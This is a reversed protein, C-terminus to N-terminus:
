KISNRVEDVSVGNERALRELDDHEPKVRVTGYGESIKVRVEGYKTAATEERRPLTHRSFAYERIGLTTTHRFMLELMLDKHCSRCMCVLETGARGKKMGISHTYVDLAGNEFLVDRAFSIDEATIDDLNCRLELVKESGGSIEGLMARVCNAAPFDKKGMGYGTKDVRMVPMDGFENVFHKLLAAGTPTCLEGSISGGYIPVGKLIYATAPAPVPLIGHACHVHGSGTHVPSAIIKEPNLDNILVCVAAVDAVADMSGVEHFHIQDVPKGHAHSEAEAILGYVALIDKKVKEPVDIHSIIHSIEAMGTHHHSSGEDHIHEHGHEHHGSDHGHHLDNHSHHHFFADEEEGNITVSVHTGQIGCKESVSAAYKIGPIKLSNLKSLVKERDDALELLAATLMDGAAGMGCDFYLTKM